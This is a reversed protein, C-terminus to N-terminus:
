FFGYKDVLKQVDADSCVDSLIKSESRLVELARSLVKLEDARPIVVVGDEDGFILDSPNIPVGDLVIPKNISAVAGRGKIDRCYHGRAYVPFGARRTAANDRTVGGILAGVAGARIALSMNLEGFYALDPRDNQVVILDNDVVFSYHKLAEYITNPPDDSRVERIHLPRARGFIKAGPLNPKYCPPLLSCIGFEDMIDSLVPSSLVSGLLRLRKGEEALIGGAVIKALELDTENNVDILEIPEGFIMAPKDGIRRRTKLAADRRMVYLAMAETDEDPLSVSNPIQTLDYAPRGGNWHYCKDRRGLVVSDIEPSTVLMEVARRITEEKVFPSTCLHQIYIDAEFHEVENLFLRNGDTKNNALMPDRELVTAGLRRGIALIEESESDLIVEDIFKCRLLKRLTFVFFPEGNFSRTNKSEVRESTGKVPLFAIVKPTKM